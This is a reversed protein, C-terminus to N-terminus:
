FDRFIPSIYLHGVLYSPRYEDNVNVREYIILIGYQHYIDYQKVKKVQHQM